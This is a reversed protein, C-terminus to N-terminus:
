DAVTDQTDKLSTQAEMWALSSEVSGSVHHDLGVGRVQDASQSRVLQCGSSQELGWRVASVAKGASREKEGLSESDEALCSEWIHYQVATGPALDVFAQYQTKLAVPRSVICFRRTGTRYSVLFAGYCALM